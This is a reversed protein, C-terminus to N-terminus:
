AVTLTQVVVLTGLGAVVLHSAYAMVPVNTGPKLFISRLADGLSENEHALLLAGVYVTVLTFVSFFADRPAMFGMEFAAVLAVLAAVASFNWFLSRM